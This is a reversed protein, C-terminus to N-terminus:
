RVPELRAGHIHWRLQEPTAGPVDNVRRLEYEGTFEQAAGGITTAHVRVPVTAFISGAAGEFSVAGAFEVRSRGTPAFGAAFEDYSKGSAAGAQSWLAYATHYDRAEIAAYYRRLVDRAASSDAAPGPPSGAVPTPANGRPQCGALLVAAGLAICLRTV